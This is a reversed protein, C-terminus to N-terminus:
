TEVQVIYVNTVMTTMEVVAATTAAAALQCRMAMSETGNSKTATSNLEKKEREQLTAKNPNNRVYIMVFYVFSLVYDTSHARSSLGRCM